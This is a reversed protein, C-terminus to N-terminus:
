RRSRRLVVMMSIVSLAGLAPLLTSSAVPTTPPLNTVQANLTPSLTVTSGGTVEVQTSWPAYGQLEVSLTHQGASVDEILCPTKGKVVNDVFVLAGPPQSSISLKGTNESETRGPSITLWGYSVVANDGSIVHISYDTGPPVDEPVTWYYSGKEASVSSTITRLPIFPNIGQKLEIRIDMGELGTQTWTIEHGTGTQWHHSSTPASVKLTKPTTTVASSILRFANKDKVEPYRSSFIGIYNVTKDTILPYCGYVDTPVTWSYSGSAAPPHDSFYEITPQFDSEPACELYITVDSNELSTQTWTIAYTEGAEWTPVPSGPTTLTLSRSPDTSPWSWFYGRDDKVEPYNLSTIHIIYFINVNLTEPVTWSFKGATAPTSSSITQVFDDYFYLEIRVHTNELGTQTWTIEHQTGEIWSPYQTDWAPGTEVPSTIKLTRTDAATVAPVLAGFVLLVVGACFLTSIFRTDQVM